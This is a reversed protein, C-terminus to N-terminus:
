SLAEKLTDINHEMAAFYDGNMAMDLPFVPIGIEAAIISAASVSGNRETFVAPISHHDILEIIAILDAASAESGSEEEIAAAIELGFAEAFYAFGDHFTIIEQGAAGKLAAEGYAQLAELRENLAETNTRFTQAHDPYQSSLATCINEAMIAANEPALWIHPDHEHRHDHDEHRHDEHAHGDTELLPVGASCDIVTGATELVEEMFEELGAGSLLVVESGTLAEMQRVSLSYDHLCSVSDAIVQTVTLGTGATIAEAFQAVPGTTAAIHAPEHATCGVLLLILLIVFISKAFRM